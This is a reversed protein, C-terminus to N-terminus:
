APILARISKVRTVGGAAFLGDLGDGAGTAKWASEDNSGTLHDAHLLLLPNFAPKAKMAALFAPLADKRAAALPRPLAEATLGLHLIIVDCGAECFAAADEPRCALAVTFFGEERAHRLCEIERTLGLGAAELDARFFGDVLGVTPFNAAGELGKARWAQFSPGRLLFPDTACVGMAVPCPACLPLLDPMGRAADQNANGASELASLMGTEGQASRVPFAPHYLLLDPALPLSARADELSACAAAFIGKERRRKDRWYEVRPLPKM